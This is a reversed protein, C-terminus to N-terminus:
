DTALSSLSLRRKERKQGALDGGCQGAGGELDLEHRVFGERGGGVALRLARAESGQGGRAGAGLLVILVQGAM